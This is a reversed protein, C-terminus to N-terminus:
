LRRVVGCKRDSTDSPPLPTSARVAPILSAALSCAIIVLTVGAFTAPSPRRESCSLDFFRTVICHVGARHLLDALLSLARADKRATVHRISKIPM